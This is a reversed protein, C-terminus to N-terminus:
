RFRVLTLLLVQSIPPPLSSTSQLPPLHKRCPTSSPRQTSFLYLVKPSVLSPQKGSGLLPDYILDQLGVPTSSLHVKISRLSLSYIHRSKDRTKSEAIRGVRREGSDERRYILQRPTIGHYQGTLAPASFHFQSARVRLDGSSCGRLTSSGQVFDVFEELLFSVAGM